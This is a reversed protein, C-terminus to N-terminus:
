VLSPATYSRAQDTLPQVKEIHFVLARRNADAGSALPENAPAADEPRGTHAEDLACAALALSCGTSGCTVSDATVSVTFCLPPLLAGVRSAETM